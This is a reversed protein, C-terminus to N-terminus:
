ILGGNLKIATSAYGLVYRYASKNATEFQYGARSMYENIDFPNGPPMLPCDDTIINGYGLDLENYSIM